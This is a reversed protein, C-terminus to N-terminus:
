AVNSGNVHTCVRGLFFGCGAGTSPKPRILDDFNPRSARSDPRGTWRSAIALLPAPLSWAHRQARLVRVDQGRHSVQCDGELALSLWRCRSLQMLAHPPSPRSPRCGRAQARQRLYRVGIVAFSRPRRVGLRHRRFDLESTSRGNAVVITSLRKRRGRDNPTRFGFAAALRLRNYSKRVRRRCRAVYPGFASRIQRAILRGWRNVYDIIPSEARSALRRSSGTGVEAAMRSRRSDPRSCRTHFVFTNVETEDHRM